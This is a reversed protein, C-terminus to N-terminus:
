FRMIEVSHFYGDANYHFTQGWINNDIDGFAFYLNQPWGDENLACESEDVSFINQAINGVSFRRKFEKCGGIVRAFPETFLYLDLAAYDGNNKITLEFLSEKVPEVWIQLSPRVANRRKESEREAEAEAARKGQVLAIAAVFLSMLGTFVAGAYGLFGDASIGFLGCSNNHVCFIHILWIALPILIIILCLAILVCKLHEEVLRVLHEIADINNAKTTKKM